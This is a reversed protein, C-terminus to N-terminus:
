YPRSVWLAALVTFLLKLGWTRRVCFEAGSTEPAHVVRFQSAQLAFQSSVCALTECSAQLCTGCESFYVVAGNPFAVPVGDPYVGLVCFLLHWLPAAPTASPEEPRACMWRKPVGKPCLPHENEPTRLKTYRSTPRVVAAVAVLVNGTRWVVEVQLHVALNLLPRCRGKFYAALLTLNKGLHRDM